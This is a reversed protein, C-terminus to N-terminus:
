TFGFGTERLWKGSARIEFIKELDSVIRQLVCQGPVNYKTVTARVAEWVQTYQAETKYPPIHLMMSVAVVESETPSQRM